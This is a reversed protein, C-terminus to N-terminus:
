QYVNEKSVEEINLNNNKIFQESLDKCSSLLKKTMGVTPIVEPEISM